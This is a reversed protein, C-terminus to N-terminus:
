ITASVSCVRVTFVPKPSALCSFMCLLPNLRVDKAMFCIDKALLRAHEDGSREGWGLYCNAVHDMRLQDLAVTHGEFERNSNFAVVLTGFGYILSLSYYYFVLFAAAWAEASVM